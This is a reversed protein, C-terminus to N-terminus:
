PHEQGAQDPEDSPEDGPEYTQPEYAHAEDARDEPHPPPASGRRSDAFARLSQAASGLLDALSDLTDVGLPGVSARARCWPCGTCTTAHPPQQAAEEARSGPGVSEPSASEPGASEASPDDTLEQWPDQDAAAAAGPASPRAPRSPDTFARLWQRAADVLQGAEQEVDGIPWRGSRGEHEPM